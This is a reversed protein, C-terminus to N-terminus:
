PGNVCLTLMLPSALFHTCFGNVKATDADGSVSVGISDSQTFLIMKVNSYGWQFNSALALARHSSAM